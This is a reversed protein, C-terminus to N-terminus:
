LSERLSWAMIPDGEIRLAGTRFHSGSLQVTTTQDGAGCEVGNLPISLGRGFAKVCAEKRVWIELFMRSLSAEDAAARRVTARERPTFHVDMLEAADDIPRLMEIDVGIPRGESVGIMVRSGSYSMSYHLQPFRKLRPKGFDDIDIAQDRLPIGYGERLIVRLAAHGAIYRKRLAPTRFRRVRNLEDDSLLEELTGSSPNATDISWMAFSDPPSPLRQANLGRELLVAVPRRLSPSGSVSM